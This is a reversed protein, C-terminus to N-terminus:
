YRSDTITKLTASLIIYQRNLMRKDKEIKLPIKVFVIQDDELLGYGRIMKIKLKM